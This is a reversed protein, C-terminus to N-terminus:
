SNNLIYKIKTNRIISKSHTFNQLLFYIIDDYIKESINDNITFTHTIVPSLTAESIVFCSYYNKINEINQNSYKLIDTALLNQSFKYISNDCKFGIEELILILNNKM